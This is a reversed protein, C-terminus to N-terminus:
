LFIGESSSRNYSNLTDLGSTLKDWTDIKRANKEMISEADAILAAERTQM